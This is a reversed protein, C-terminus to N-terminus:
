REVIAEVSRNVRETQKLTYELNAMIQGFLETNNMQFLMRERKRKTKVNRSFSADFPESM